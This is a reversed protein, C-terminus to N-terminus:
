KEYIFYGGKETKILKSKIGYVEFLLEPTIDEKKCIKYVSKDKLFVFTDGIDLAQNIDHMSILSSKNYKKCEEKILSIINVQSAIDLNSTPEDFIITKADQIFSRAIAVKQREGGSIESTIEDQISELNFEKIVENVKKLDDKNPYIYYYPLRGLTIVEKVTLDNGNILQPVYAILSAFDKSKLDKISKEDFIIDGEKVKNAGTLCNIITSKGVGNPGLLVVCEGDNITFSVGELVKKNKRYSFSLNNVRIM